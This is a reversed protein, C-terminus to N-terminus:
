MFVINEEVQGNKDNYSIKSVECTVKMKIPKGTDEFLYSKVKTVIRGDEIDSPMKERMFVSNQSFIDISKEVIYDNDVVSNIYITDTVNKPTNDVYDIFELSCNFPAAGLYPAYFYRKNIIRDKLKELIDDDEHSVYVRYIIDKDSMVVEIPIQTHEEPSYILKLRDARIYNLTQMIKRNRTIKRLAVSCKERSFISYYSDREYGLIGALMGIITTRPPISYTLSSSNTYLKRFHAYKGYLDFILLKM